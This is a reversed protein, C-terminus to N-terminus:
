KKGELVKNKINKEIKEEVIEGVEVAVEKAKMDETEGKLLTKAEAKEEVTKDEKKLNEVKSEQITNKGKEKQSKVKENGMVGLEDSLVIKIHSWRRKYPRGRGRGATGARYRKLKMGENVEITKFVVQDTKANALATKIAKLLPVAAAKQTFMLTDLAQAPSMKRIMDTVLRLKRPSTTLNKQIHRYEM